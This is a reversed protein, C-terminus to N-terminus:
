RNKHVVATGVNEPDGGRTVSSLDSLAYFL